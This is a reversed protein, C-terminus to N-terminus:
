IMRVLKRASVNVGLSKNTDGGDFRALVITLNGGDRCTFRPLDWTIVQRGVENNSNDSPVFFWKEAFTRDLQQAGAASAVMDTLLSEGPVMRLLRVQGHFANDNLTTVMIKIGRYHEERGIDSTLLRAGIISGFIPKVTSGGRPPVAVSLNHSVTSFRAGRALRAM